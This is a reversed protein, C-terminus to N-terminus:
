EWWCHLLTGKGGCGRWCKNSTSKKTIATRVPTLHYSMTTKIQIERIILPTSCRKIHRNVMQIEEKSFHRSRRGLKPNPQKNQKKSTLATQIKQFNITLQMMKCINEGTIYTTKENNEKETTEKVKCFSALKTLTQKNIKTKLKQQRQLNVLSSM